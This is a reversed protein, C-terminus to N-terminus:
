NAFSFACGSGIRSSDRSSSFVLGRHREDATGQDIIAGSAGVQMTIVAVRAKSELKRLRDDVDVFLFNFLRHFVQM